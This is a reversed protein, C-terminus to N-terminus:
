SNIIEYIPTNPKVEGWKLGSNYLHIGASRPTTLNKVTLGEEFLLRSGSFMPSYMDIPQIFDTLGLRNVHYTILSPGIVGWKQTSVHTPFGLAKRLSMKLRKRNSYWPPIFHVNESAALISKLLASNQPIKIIANSVSSNNEYSLIYECDTFEKLCYVDCDVYIGLGERQM